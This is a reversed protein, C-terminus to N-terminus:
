NVPFKNDDREANVIPGPRAPSIHHRGEPPTRHWHISNAGREKKKEREKVWGRISWSQVSQSLPSQPQSSAPWPSNPERLHQLQRVSGEARVPKALVVLAATGRPDSLLGPPLNWISCSRLLMGLTKPAFVSGNRRQNSRLM